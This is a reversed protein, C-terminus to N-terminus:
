CSSNYKKLDCSNDILQYRTERSDFADDIHKRLQDSSTPYKWWRAYGDEWDKGKLNDDLRTPLTKSGNAISPLTIAMLGSRGNKADNRLSSAIEWDVYRRAWTCKGLLVITVTSDTLYLERIRRMVYDTDTSNIFDDDDSVGLARAIFVDKYDEIFDHAEDQDDHHYSVFCKHRVTNGARLAASKEAINRPTIIMAIRGTATIAVGLVHQVSDYYVLFM